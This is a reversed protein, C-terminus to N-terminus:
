LLVKQIKKIDEASLSSIEIIENLSIEDSMLNEEVVEFERKIAEKVLAPDNNINILEEYAKQIPPYNYKDNEVVHKGCQDLWSNLIENEIKKLEKSKNKEEM